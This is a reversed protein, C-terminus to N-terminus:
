AVKKLVNYPEGNKFKLNEPKWLSVTLKPPFGLIKIMEEEMVREIYYEYGQITVISDHITFIPLNPKEIAVRKTVISLIIHSEIRQLLKPM